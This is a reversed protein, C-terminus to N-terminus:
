MDGYFYFDAPTPYALAQRAEDTKIEVYSDIQAQSFVGSEAFIKNKSLASLVTMLDGPTQTVNSKEWINEEYPGFKKADRTNMIGDLGAVLQASFALYPNCTPDPCRFEVRKANEVGKYYMPIRIAASRNRASFAVATPAEFHPVLRRYSNLTPNSFALISEVHTLLGAIYQHARDSLEAYGKPNYFINKSDKFVSQHTHMGSGNDSVIPKPLFSVTLGYKHGLNRAVYKYMMVQDAMKLLSQYRMDIELQGGSAVEHHHFETVIGLKELTRVMDSRFEQFADFPPVPFYGTKPLIRYGSRVSYEDVNPLERSALDIGSKYPSLSVDMRDFVFFELEPGWYSVSGIKTKALYKEAKMASFRPDKEFYENKVPDYVMCIVSATVNMFPDIFFTALDPKLLMDSEFITQYGRISSGDFGYGSECKKENFERVPVTMHQWTGRLDTFKLDVFEIKEARLISAIKTFTM